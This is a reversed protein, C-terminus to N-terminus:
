FDTRADLKIQEENMGKNICCSNGQAGALPWTRPSAFPTCLDILCM